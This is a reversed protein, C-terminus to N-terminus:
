HTTKRSAFPRFRRYQHRGEEEKPLVFSLFFVSHSLYQALAGVAFVNWFLILRGSSWEEGRCM